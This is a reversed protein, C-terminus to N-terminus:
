DGNTETSPGFEKGWRLLFYIGASLWGISQLLEVIDSEQIAMDEYIFAIAFFRFVSLLTLVSWISYITWACVKPVRPALNLSLWVFLAATLGANLSTQLYLYIGEFDGRITSLM